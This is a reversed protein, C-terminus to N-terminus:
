GRASPVPLRAPPAASPVHRWLSRRWTRALWRWRHVFKERDTELLASEHALRVEEDALSRALRELRAEEAAVIVQREELEAATAALADELPQILSERRDLEAERGATGLDREDLEHAAVVLEMLSASDERLGGLVQELEALLETSTAVLVGERRLLSNRAAFRAPAAFTSV